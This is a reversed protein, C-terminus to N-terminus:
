ANVASFIILSTGAPLLILLANATFTAFAFFLLPTKRKRLRDSIAAVLICGPIAALTGVSTIQGAQVYTFGKTNILFQPMWVGFVFNTSRFAYAIIYLRMDPNKIVRIVSDLMDRLKIGGNAHNKDKLLFLNMVWNLLLIIGMLLYFARWDGYAEYILPFGMYALTNGIGSSASMIGVATAKWNRPFWELMLKVSNIYFTSSGIGVLFQAVFLVIYSHNIWFLFVGVVTVATSWIITKRPGYSDGLLGAPVQMLGYVLFFATTLLGMAGHTIGLESILVPTLAGAASRLFNEVIYTICLTTLIILAFRSAKDSESM